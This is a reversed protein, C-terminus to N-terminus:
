RISVPSGQPASDIPVFQGGRVILERFAKSSIRRESDFAFPGNIVSPIATGSALAHRVGDRTPQAQQGAAWALQIVSDYARVNFADPYKAYKARFREVFDEALPGADKAYFDQAVSVGEAAPGALTIFEQSYNGWVVKVQDLGIQRAQQVILAASKYYAQIVLVKVGADRVKLLLPRFDTSTDVFGEVVPTQVGRKRAEDLYIDVSTKGWDNNVYLIATQQGYRQALELLNRAYVEQTSSTSFMFQGGKTFDPHSNTFGYQVLGGREYVPSAGMSAPSSFDGLEALINPDDVFKQAINVSQKPDTQSDEWDLKVQRGRVGGHGNIEELAITFGERWLKAYEANDGTLPGSVGFHIFGDAGPVAKQECGAGLLLAMLAVALGATRTLRSGRHGMNFRHTASM